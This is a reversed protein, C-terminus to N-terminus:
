PVDFGARRLAEGVSILPLGIIATPDDSRMAQLLATGTQESKFGGACDVPMDREVYRRIEAASLTRFVVETPVITDFHFEREACRVAVASLFIVRQGSFAALQRRAAAMSGPKGIIRGEFVAVQDSGIVVAEPRRRSVAEAKEGALRAALAAPEEGPLADEDIAPSCAEFPLGFRELLIKRYPSSSALILPCKRSQSQM